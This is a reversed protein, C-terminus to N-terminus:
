FYFRKTVKSSLRGNQYIKNEEVNQYEWGLVQRTEKDYQCFRSKRHFTGWTSRTKYNIGNKVWKDCARKAETFSGFRGFLNSWNAEISTPLAIAAILPILLRKM